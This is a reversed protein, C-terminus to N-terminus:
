INLKGYAGTTTAYYRELKKGDDGQSVIGGNNMDYQRHCTACTAIGFESVSLKYSRVPLANIDFCNPCERDYAYFSSPISTGYGVIIGNNMGLVYGLQEERATMNVTSELGQNSTFTFRKGSATITVFAGSNPTMATALTPDNHVSNDFFLRCYQRSYLEETDGCGSFLTTIGLLIIFIRKM